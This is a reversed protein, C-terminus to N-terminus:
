IDKTAKRNPYYSGCGGVNTHTGEREQFHIPNEHVRECVFCMGVLSTSSTSEKPSVTEGAVMEVDKKDGSSPLPSSEVSKAKKRKKQTEKYDRKEDQIKDYNFEILLVILIGAEVCTDILHWIVQLRGM